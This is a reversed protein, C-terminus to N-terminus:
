VLFFAFGYRRITVYSRGLKVGDSGDRAVGCRFLMCLVIM